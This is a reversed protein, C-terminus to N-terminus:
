QDPIGSMRRDSTGTHESLHLLRKSRIFRTGRIRYDDPMTPIPNDSVYINGGVRLGEPLKRLGTESVDLDDRVQLSSPLSKLRVGALNLSHDFSEGDVAFGFFFRARFDREIRSKLADIVAPHRKAFELADTRRNRWNRLECRWFQFQWRGKRRRDEIYALEGHQQYTQFWPPNTTCWRSDRGWWAAAPPSKLIIVRYQEDDLLVQSGDLIASVDLASYRNVSKERDM